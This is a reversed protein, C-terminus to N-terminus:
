AGTAAMVAATTGAVDYDIYSTLLIVYWGLTALILTRPVEKEVAVECEVHKLDLEPTLLLLEKGELGTISWAPHLVGSRKLRFAGGDSFTATGDSRWSMTLVAADISSGSDRVTVRPRLFGARKFTWSKGQALGTALSGHGSAWTLSAVEAEDSYLRSELKGTQKWRLM